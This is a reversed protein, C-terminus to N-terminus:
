KSVIRAREPTKALQVCVLHRDPGIVDLVDVCECRTELVSLNQHQNAFHVCIRSGSSSRRSASRSMLWRLTYGCISM